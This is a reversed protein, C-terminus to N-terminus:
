RPMEGLYLSKSSVQRDFVVDQIGPVQLLLFRLAAENTGSQGILKLHIRYRYSDDDEQDRGGVIGYDNTVLLAGFSADAYNTFNHRTFVGAPANTQSGSYLSTVSFYQKNAGAPLVVADTLYVPDTM